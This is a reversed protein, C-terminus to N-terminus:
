IECVVIVCHDFFPPTPPSQMGKPRLPYRFQYTVIHDFTTMTFGWSWKIRVDQNKLSGAESSM